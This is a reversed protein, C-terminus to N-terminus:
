VGNRGIMHGLYLLETQGGFVNLHNILINHKRLEPLVVEINQKHDAATQSFVLTDDIFVLAFESLRHRPNFSGDANFKPPDFLNNM